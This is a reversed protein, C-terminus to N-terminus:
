KNKIIKKLQFVGKGSVKMKPKRKKERKEIKHKTKKSIETM